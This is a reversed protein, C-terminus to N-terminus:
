VKRTQDHSRDGRFGSRVAGPFFRLFLTGFRARGERGCPPPPKVRRCASSVRRRRPPPCRRWRRRARSDARTGLVHALGCRARLAGGRCPAQGPQAAAHRARTARGTTARQLRMATVARLVRVKRVHTQAQELWEQLKHLDLHLSGPPKVDWHLQAATPTWSRSLVMLAGHQLQPDLDHVAMCAMHHAFRTWNHVRM